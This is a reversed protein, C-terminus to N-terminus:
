RRKSAPRGTLPRKRPRSRRTRRPTARAAFRPRSNIRVANPSPHWRQEKFMPFLTYSTLGNINAAPSCCFHLLFDSFVAFRLKLKLYARSKIPAGPQSRVLM